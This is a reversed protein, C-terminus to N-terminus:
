AGFSRVAEDQADFVEFVALLKTIQMVKVVREPINLLKVTGGLRHVSVYKAVIMGVGASDMYSVQSLDLVIKVRGMAALADVASKLPTEGEDLILRGALGLVTVDGIRQETVQMVM